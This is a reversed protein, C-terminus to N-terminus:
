KYRAKDRLLDRLAQNMASTTAGGMAKQGEMEREYADTFLQWWAIGTAAGRYTAVVKGSKKVTLKMESTFDVEFRVFPAPIFLCIGIFFGKAVNAGMHPDSVRDVRLSIHYADEPAAADTMMSVRRFVGTQNLRTLCRQKFKTSPSIEGGQDTVTVSTFIANKGRKLDRAHGIPKPLEVLPTVQSGANCGGAVILLLIVVSKKM